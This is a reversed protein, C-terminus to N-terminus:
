GRDASHALLPKGTRAASRDVGRRKAGDKRMAGVAATESGDVALAKFRSLLV